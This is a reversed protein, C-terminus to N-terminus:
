IYVYATNSTLLHFLHEKMYSTCLFPISVPFATRLATLVVACSVLFLVMDSLGMWHFQLIGSITWMLM